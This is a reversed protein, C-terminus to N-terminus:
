DEDSVLPIGGGDAIRHADQLDDFFLMRHELSSIQFVNRVKDQPNSWPHMLGLAHGLEHLVLKKM